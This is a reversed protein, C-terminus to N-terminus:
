YNKLPRFIQSTSLYVYLLIVKLVLSQYSIIVYLKWLYSKNPTSRTELGPPVNSLTYFIFILFIMTNQLWSLMYIRFNRLLHQIKYFGGGRSVQPQVHTKVRYWFSSRCNFLPKTRLPITFMPSWWNFFSSTYLM